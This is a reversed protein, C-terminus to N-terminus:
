DTARVWLVKSTREEKKIEPEEKMIESKITM